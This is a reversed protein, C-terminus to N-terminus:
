IGGCIGWRNPQNYVPRVYPMFEQTRENKRELEVKVPVELRDTEPYPAPKGVEVIRLVKYHEFFEGLKKANHRDFGEFVLGKELAGRAAAEDHRIMAEFFERAAKTAAENDTLRVQPAFEQIWKKDGCVVKVSVALATPDPHLGAVPKAVEVIRSVNLRGYGVKIKEAPIGGYILGAKAYDKAILAEFFERAVKTAIQEKTLNGRVLGPPRKIEDVKVVDSPLDLDFVKPDIPKNYDLYEILKFEKWQNDQRRYQASCFGRENSPFDNVSFVSRTINDM